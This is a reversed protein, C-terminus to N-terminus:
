AAGPRKSDLWEALRDPEPVDKLSLTREENKARYRVEVTGVGRRRQARSVHVEADVVDAYRVRGEPVDKDDVEIGTEGFRWRAGGRWVAFFQIAMFVMLLLLLIVLGSGQRSWALSGLLTLVVLVPLSERAQRRLLVPSRVVFPPELAEPLRPVRGGARGQRLGELEGRLRERETQLRELKARLEANETPLPELARQESRLSERVEEVAQGVSPDVYRETSM